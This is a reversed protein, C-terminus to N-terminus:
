HHMPMRSRLRTNVDPLAAVAIVITLVGMVWATWAAGRLNDFNMLWPSIVLIAGFLAMAYDAMVWDDRYIQALGSLAILVGLAILTAGAEDNTTVWFPSLATFAGFLVALYDQPRSSTFM